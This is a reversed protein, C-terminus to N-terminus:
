NLPKGDPGSDPGSTPLGLEEFLKDRMKSESLGDFKKELPSQTSVEVRRTAMHGAMELIDSSAKNEVADNGCYLKEFKRKLAIPAIVQLEAVVEQMSSHVGDSLETLIAQADPLNVINMVQQPTYGTESAIQVHTKGAWHLRVVMLQAPKLPRHAM